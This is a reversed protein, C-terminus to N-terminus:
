SVLNKKILARREKVGQGSRFNSDGAAHRSLVVVVPSTVWSDADGGAGVFDGGVVGVAGGCMEEGRWGDTQTYFESQVPEYKEHLHFNCFYGFVSDYVVMYTYLVSCVYTFTCIYTGMYMRACTTIGPNYGM